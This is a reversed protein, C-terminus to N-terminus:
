AFSEARTVARGYATLGLGYILAALPGLLAATASLSYRILDPSHFVDQTFLAVMTPGFGFGILDFVILYLASVQGRMQNPTIIQFCANLPGPIMAACFGVLAFVAVALRATPMLPMAIMAPVLLVQAMVTVRLNADARGERALREALWGGLLLGPPWVALIVLGTTTGVQAPTWGYTRIFFTPTWVMTGLSLMTGAGLGAFLPLYAGRNDWMFGLVQRLPLSRLPADAAGGLLARRKPEAVTRMLAAIILGPLGVALFTLQWGYLTGLVPLTVPPMKSLMEIISGGIILALGTGTTFGFNLVAMARPLKERPFLDAMMSFTSPGQVSGGAGMGVRSFFFEWFNRALGCSATMLSWIAISAGLLMRRSRSVDVWRGAPLGIVVYFAVFAFGMLLSMQVDSLHLSREIPRVLLGIIGRDLFNFMLALSFLGMAYWAQRPHPWPAPATGPISTDTRAAPADDPQRDRALAAEPASLNSM